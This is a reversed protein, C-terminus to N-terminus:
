LSVKVFANYSSGDTTHGHLTFTDSMYGDGLITAQKCKILVDGHVSNKFKQEGEASSTITVLNASLKHEEFMSKWFDKPTIELEKKVGTNVM